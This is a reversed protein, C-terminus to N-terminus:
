RKWNTVIYSIFSNMHIILFLDCLEIACIIEKIVMDHTPSFHNWITGFLNQM